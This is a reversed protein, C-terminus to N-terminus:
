HLLLNRCGKPMVMALEGPRAVIVGIERCHVGSATASTCRFSFMMM